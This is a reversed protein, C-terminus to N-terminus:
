ILLLGQRKKGKEDVNSFNGFYFKYCTDIVMKETKVEFEDTRLTFDDYLTDVPYNELWHQQPRTADLYVPNEAEPNTTYQFILKTNNTFVPTGEGSYKFSAIDSPTQDKGLTYLGKLIGFIIVIRNKTEYYLNSPITEMVKFEVSSMDLAKRTMNDVLEIHVYKLRSRHDEELKSIGCIMM